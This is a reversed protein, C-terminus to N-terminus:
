IVAEYMTCKKLCCIVVCAMVYIIIIYKNKQIMSFITPKIYMQKFM